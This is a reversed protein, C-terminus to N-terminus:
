TKGPPLEETAVGNYLMPRRTDLVAGTKKDRATSIRPRQQDDAGSPMSAARIPIVDGPRSGTDGQTATMDTDHSLYAAQRLLVDQGRQNLGRYIRLLELSGNDARCM